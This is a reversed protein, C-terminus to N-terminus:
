TADPKRILDAIRVAVSDQIAVVEATAFPVGGAFLDVKAGVPRSLRVVSGVELAAIDRLTMNARGLEVELIFPLRGYPAIQEPAIM